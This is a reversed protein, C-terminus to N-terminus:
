ADSSTRTRCACLLLCSRQRQNAQLPRIRLGARLGLRRRGPRPRLPRSPPRPDPRARVPARERGRRTAAPPGTIVRARLGLDALAAKASTLRMGILKPVEVKAVTTTPPATTTTPLSTTTTVPPLSGSTTPPATSTAAVNSGDNGSGLAVVGLIVSAAALGVIWRRGPGGNSPMTGGKVWVVESRCADPPSRAIRGHEYRECMEGPTRLRTSFTRPRAAQAM